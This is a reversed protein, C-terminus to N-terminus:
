LWSVAIAGPVKASSLFRSKKYTWTDESTLKHCCKIHNTSHAKTHCFEFTSHMLLAIGKTVSILLFQSFETQQNTQHLYRLLLWITVRGPEPKAPNVPKNRHTVCIKTQWLTHAKWWFWNYSLTNAVSLDGCCCIRNPEMEFWLTGNRIVYALREKWLQLNAYELGREFMGDSTKRFAVKWVATKVDVSTKQRGSIEMLWDTSPTPKSSPDAWSQLLTNNGKFIHVLDTYKEQVEM